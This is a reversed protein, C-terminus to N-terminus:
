GKLAQLTEKHKEMIAMLAEEQSKGADMEAKVDKALAMILDPNEDMIKMIQVRQADPLSRLQTKIMQKMLFNMMSM